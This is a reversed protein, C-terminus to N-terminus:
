WFKQSSIVMLTNHKLLHTKEAILFTKYKKITVKLLHEYHVIYYPKRVSSESKANYNEPVPPLYEKPPAM